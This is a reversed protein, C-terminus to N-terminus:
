RRINNIIENVEMTRILTNIARFLLDPPADSYSVLRRIRLRLLAIEGQLDKLYVANQLPEREKDRLSSSYFGHTRANQNELPAGRRRKLHQETSKQLDMPILTYPASPHPFPPLTLPIGHSDNQPGVPSFFSDYRIKALGGPEIGSSVGM